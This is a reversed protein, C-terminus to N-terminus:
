EWAETIAIICERAALLQQLEEPYINLEHLIELGTLGGTDDADCELAWHSLRDALATTMAEDANPGEPLPDHHRGIAEAMWGPLAWRRILEAGVEAHLCWVTALVTDTDWSTRTRKELETVAQLLVPQGIDHLLGCLFAGEVNRRRLRAIERAWAGAAASHQWLTQLHPEFKPVNFIKGKVAVSTAIESVTGLGLRNIAQPLSVIAQSAAFSASNAVRLLHAAMSQDRQIIDALRRAGTNEDRVAELVSAATAPLVPLELHGAAIGERLRDRLEPSAAADPVFQPQSM